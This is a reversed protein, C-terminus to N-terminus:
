ARGGDDDRGAAVLRLGAAAMVAPIEVITDRDKQKTAEPLEAFPELDPHRAGDRVSGFTWGRAFLEASWLEHELESLLELQRPSPELGTPWGAAGEPRETADAIDFGLAAVKVPIRRAQALNSERYVEGLDDWAVDTARGRDTPDLADRYREHIARAMRDLAGDGIRAPGPAVANEVLLLGCADLLIRDLRMLLHGLTARGRLGDASRPADADVLRHLGLDHALRDVHHRLVRHARIRAEKPRPLLSLGSRELSVLIRETLDEPFAEGQRPGDQLMRLLAEAPHPGSVDPARWARQAETIARAVARTRGLGDLHAVLTVDSVGVIRLSAPGADSQLLEELMSRESAGGSPPVVAIRQETRTALGAVVVAAQLADPLHVIVPSGLGARAGDGTLERELDLVVSAMRETAVDTWEEVRLGSPRVPAPAGPPLLLTVHGEEGPELVSVIADLLAATHPGGGLVVIRLPGRLDRRRLEDIRVSREVRRDRSVVSLRTPNGVTVDRRELGGVMSELAPSEVVAAIRGPPSRRSRNRGVERAALVYSLTQADDGLDVTVLDAGSVANAFAGRRPDPHPVVLPRVGLQQLEQGGDAGIRPVVLVTRRRRRAPLERAWELARQEDLCLVWHDRYLTVFRGRLFTRLLRSVVVIAGLAGISPALVRAWALWLPTAVAEFVPASLTFLQLTAYVAALLDAEASGAATAPDATAEVLTALHLRMRPVSWAMFGIFAVTLGVPPGAGLAAMRRRWLSFSGRRGAAGYRRGREREM